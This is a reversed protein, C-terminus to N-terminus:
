NVDSCECTACLSPSFPAYIVTFSLWTTASCGLVPKSPPGSHTIKLSNTNVVRGYMRVTLSTLASHYTDENLM